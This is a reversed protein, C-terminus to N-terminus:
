FRLSPGANFGVRSVWGYGKVNDVHWVLETLLGFEPTVGLRAQLAGGLTPSFGVGVYRTTGGEAIVSIDASLVTWSLLNVLGSLPTLRASVSASWDPLLPSMVYGFPDLSSQLSNISARSSAYFKQLGIGLSFVDSVFGYVAAGMPLVHVYPNSFEYGSLIQLEVHSAADFPERAEYYLASEEELAFTSGSLGSVLVSLVFAIPRRVSLSWAGVRM